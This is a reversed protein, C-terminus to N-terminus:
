LFTVAANALVPRLEARPKLDSFRGLDEGGREESLGVAFNGQLQETSFEPYDLGAPVLPCLCLSVYSM